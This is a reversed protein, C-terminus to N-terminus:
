ASTELPFTRGVINDSSVLISRLYQIKRKLKGEYTINRSNNFIYMVHIVEQVTKM